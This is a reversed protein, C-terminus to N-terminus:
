WNDRYELKISVGELVFNKRLINEVRRSLSFNMKDMDNVFILFTPPLQDTQTVYKIKCIKNKPFKPPNTLRASSIVRNLVSTPIKQNLNSHIKYIQKMLNDLHLKNQGSMYVIPIWSAFTFISQASKKLRELEQKTLLDIKNIAIMVPLGLKIIKSVLSQDQNTIWESGDLLVVVIPRYYELMKKTKAFAISELWMLKSKRRIGATDIIKYIKDGYSFKAQVYDLTTGPISSTKSLEQRTITNLLTSKGTNPRGVIAFSINQDLESLSKYSRKNHFLMIQDQLEELGHWLKASVLIIDKISSKSYQWVLIDQEYPQLWKDCKNVVLITHVIKKEKRLIDLIQLEKPGLGIHNDIVFLLLDNSKIISEIYILEEDFNDLWPSDSILMDINSLTTKESIIDRTTGAIDTIIARQTWILRNFITSKGVNTSWILWIKM